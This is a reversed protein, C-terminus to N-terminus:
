FITIGAKRYVSILSEEFLRSDLLVMVTRPLGALSGTAYEYRSETHKVRFITKNSGRYFSRGM